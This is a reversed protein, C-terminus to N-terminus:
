SARLEEFAEAKISCDNITPTKNDWDELFWQSSM